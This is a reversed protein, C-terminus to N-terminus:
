AFAKYTTTLNRTNQELRGPMIAEPSDGNTPMKSYIADLRHVLAETQNNIAQEIKASDYKTNRYEDVLSRLENATSATLVAEGEHLLAPYNDYPVDNLGVRYSKIDEGYKKTFQTQLTSGLKDWSMGYDKLVGLYKKATGIDGSSYAKNIYDNITEDSLVHYGDKGYKNKFADTRSLIKAGEDSTAFAEFRARTTANDGDFIKNYDNEHFNGDAFADGYQKVRWKDDENGYKNAWKIYSQMFQNMENKQTDTLDNYNGKFAQATNMLSIASDSVGDIKEQKIDSYIGVLDEIGKNLENQDEIKVKALDLLADKSQLTADNLEEQTIIGNELAILKAEEVSTSQRIAEEANYLGDMYEENYEKIKRVSANKKADFEDALDVTTDTARSIATGAVALSGAILLGWGVPNWANAAGAALMGGAVGIGGAAAAVGGATSITGRAKDGNQIDKVGQSIGYGGVALGGAAIGAPLAIGAATAAPVSNIGMSAGVGMAQYGLGTGAFTTLASGIGASKGGIGLLKGGVNAVGQAAIAILIGKVATTLVEFWPGLLEAFASVENTLNESLIDTMQKTTQLKDNALDSTASDSYRKISGSTTDTMNALDYGTLGKSQLTYAAQMRGYNEGFASGVINTLLGNSTSGYGRGFGAIMQTTNVAEGLYNNFQTPDYINIDKQMSNILPLIETVNGSALIQDSYKQTKFLQTAYSLAADKSVGSDIMKNIFATMETSGQTLNQLAEDSMPQVEDIITQLLEKTAYNNGVMDLNSKNIGRIDKIFNGNLKNNLLNIDTTTTDLYPVIKNTIVNDLANALIQEQNMGTNALSNWMNQVESTAINNMLGQEHLINRGFGSLAAQNSRYVSSSMGTRAAINTFNNEYSNRQNNFGNKVATSFVEVAKNFTDVAATILNVKLGLESKDTLSGTTINLGPINIKGKIAKIGEEQKKARRDNEEKQEKLKKEYELEKQLAKIKENQAIARKKEEKSLGESAALVDLKLDRIEEEIHKSVEKGEIIDLEKNLQKELSELQKRVTYESEEEYQVKKKKAENIKNNTDIEKESLLIIENKIKKLKEETDYWQNTTKVGMAELKNKIESTKNISEQIEQSKKLSNVHNRQLDVLNSLLKEQEKLNKLESDRSM